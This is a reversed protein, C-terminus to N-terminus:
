PEDKTQLLLYGTQQNLLFSGGALGQKQFLVGAFPLSLKTNRNQFKGSLAGTTPTIRATLMEEGSYTLKNTNLWTITKTFGSDQLQSGALTLWANDPGEPLSDLAREGKTPPTYRSGILVPELDFGGPYSKSRPLPNKSWAMSGDFDSVEPEDRFTVVGALRGQRSYLDKFVQWQQDGSLLGKLTFSIGDGTKGAATITGNKALRATGYGDGEPQTTSGTAPSPLLFTFNGVLSTPAPNKTSFPAQAVWGTATMGDGTVTTQVLAAGSDSLGLQLTVQLDTRKRRPFSLSFSGDPLFTGKITQAVGNFVVKATFSRKGSLKLNSLMGVIQGESDRLIGEFLGTHSASFPQTSFGPDPAPQTPTTSNVNLVTLVLEGHVGLWTGRVTAPANIFVQAAQALGTPSISSLPGEVIHWDPDENRLHLTTDDDLSATARVQTSQLEQITNSNAELSVSRVEYIQAAYGGQLTLQEHASVDGHITEGLTAFDAFNQSHSFGAAPAFATIPTHPLSQSASVTTLILAYLFGFTFFRNINLLAYNLIRIKM